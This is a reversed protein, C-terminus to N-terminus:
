LCQGELSNIWDSVLALGEEHVLSRGLEPMMMGPDSTAMRFSLISDDAHGPVIGYSNGGSGRGAAIPQKCWGMSSAPHDEYDLLLGSTDAAGQANHCHGCNIDLYSRARHDLSQSADGWVANARSDRSVGDLWGRGVLHALQNKNYLATTRDLHRAKIGIPMLEGTTHNTAHCSACQNKSPVLYNLPEGSSLTMPRIAGTLSLYADDGDWVYPLADWGDTQRVMLRTEILKYNSTRINRPDSKWNASTLLAGSSDKPYLFTKSLISGVPLDFTQTADFKAQSGGPLYLTRLKLAYDSFLATNLEYVLTKDSVVLQEDDLSVLGWDSLRDPYDEAGHITVDNPGCAALLFAYAAAPLACLVTKACQKIPTTLAKLSGHKKPSLRNFGELWDIIRHPYAKRNPM